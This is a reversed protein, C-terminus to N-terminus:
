CRSSELQAQLNQARKLWISCDRDLGGAFQQVQATLRLAGRLLDLRDARPMVGAGGTVESVVRELYVQRWFSVADM